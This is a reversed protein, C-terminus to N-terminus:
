ESEAYKLQKERNDSIKGEMRDKIYVYVSRAGLMFDNRRQNEHFCVEDYGCHDNLDKLVTEGAKGSFVSEFSRDRDKQKEFDEELAKQQEEDM